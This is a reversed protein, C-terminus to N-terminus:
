VLIAQLVGASVQVEYIDDNTTDKLFLAGWGRNMDGLTVAGSILPRTNVTINELDTSGSVGGGTREDRVVIMDGENLPYLWKIRSNSIKVYDGGTKEGTILGTQSLKKFNGNRYAKIDKVTSSPDFTFDNVDIITQGGSVFFREERPTDANIADIQAQLLADNDDSQSSVGAILDDTASSVGLILDDTASSVGLILDDTASSVGL